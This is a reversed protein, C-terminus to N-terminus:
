HPRGALDLTYGAGGPLHISFHQNTVIFRVDAEASGDGETVHLRTRGDGALELRLPLEFTGDVSTGATGSGMLRSRATTTLTEGSLQAPASAWECQALVLRASGTARGAAIGCGRTAPKVTATDGTVSIELADFGLSSSDPNKWTGEFDSLQMPRPGTPGSGTTGSPTSPTPKDDGGSILLVVVVAGILVVAAVAAIWWPFKRAPAAGSPVEFSVSPGDATDEDPNAENVADLRFSYSGPPATPPVAIQVPYQETAKAGFPRSANGVVTFWSPDAGALPTVQGRGRAPQDTTNSVTFSTLGRRQADLPVKDGVATVAFTQAM